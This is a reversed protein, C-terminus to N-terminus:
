QILKKISQYIKEGVNNGYLEEAFSKDLTLFQNFDNVLTETSTGSITAYGNEELEKWETEERAIVCFKKNFFAEKQLGGSDTIVMCCNKLLELMSFYGVPDIFTINPQLHYKELMKKTRPHLPLIVQKTKHIEELASFVNALKEKDDTNEQRHITALVFENKALNLDSIITSKEESVKSYFEVADKMIDGHKEVLTDFGDFGENKLNSVAIETPCSLLNAIRDTLIRNVEEPMQMNFSRLGAEIHVVKVQLKKAALAGALTSNTDGYVVVADPKEALLIEEIKELMQGTMAGHNLGNINLNYKPKPIQMEEFFVASMNADFHQGTHVIIEEIGKHKQIVRSLVAGKVFQPRAGLITVIKKM